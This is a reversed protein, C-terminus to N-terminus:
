GHGAAVARARATRVEAVLRGHRVAGDGGATGADIANRLFALETVAAQYARVATGGPRGAARRARVRWRRRGSMSGLLVSEEATIWGYAEMAPLQRAVAGQERRRQWVVLWVVALFVPV